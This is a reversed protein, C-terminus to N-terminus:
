RTVMFARTEGQDSRFIYVGPDLFPIRAVETEELQMMKQGMLNYIAGSVPKNFYFTGDAVPNPYISLAADPAEPEQLATLLNSYEPTPSQFATWGPEGDV